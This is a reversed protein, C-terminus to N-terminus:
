LAIVEDCLASEYAEHVLRMTKLNDDGTTEPMAEGRLGALLNAHCPVISAHVVEYSPDAWAYRPPPAHAIKTGSFNTIRLEYDRRLEVSGKDGEVFAFTQPFCDNELPTGAYGMECLVTGGNGTKLMVTAVDEGRIHGQIRQTHCYLSKPEGFLFRAVDLIHSGIDVLLFKEIERLAPQNDFVPFGSVMRIRARYPEGIVGSDLIERLKRIPQQWRWNENIFLPVGADRCAQVMAKSECWSPAMPTQCVVPLGFSAALATLEAHSEPNTVIDVFDLQESKLLVRPDSYVRAQLGTLDGLERARAATRNYLAVCEAGGTEQWGAIQFRSWFGTGFLAFRLPRTM